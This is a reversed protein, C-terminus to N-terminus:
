VLARVQRARTVVDTQQMEIKHGRQSRRHVTIATYVQKITTVNKDNKEKMTLLINRPKVSTKTMDEVMVKEEISLRGAYPYGM